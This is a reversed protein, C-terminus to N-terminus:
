DEEQWGKDILDGSHELATNLASLPARATGKVDHETGDELRVRFAYEQGKTVIPSRWVVDQVTMGEVKVSGHWGSVM